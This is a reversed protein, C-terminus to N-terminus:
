SEKKKEDENRDKKLGSNNIDQTSEDKNMLIWGHKTGDYMVAHAAWVLAM